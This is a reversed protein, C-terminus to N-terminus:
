PAIESGDWAFIRGSNHSRLRSVVDLLQRAALERTFLKDTPVRAQFPESLATDVTGPHLAVCIAESRARQLEIAATKVIMNLAAKSARYGYWGGSRNDSISGVRASLAAIVSPRDKPLLTAFHKIVIAPGISNIAFSRALAAPDLERLSREPLRGAEHLMGTAILVLNVPADIRDAAAAISAEDLIDISGSIIRDSDQTLPQRSLAHIPEHHGARDLAEVLAAGIGGGAGIVVASTV